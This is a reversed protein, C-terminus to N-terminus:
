DAPLFRTKVVECLLEKRIVWKPAEKSVIKFDEILLLEKRCKFIEISPAVTFATLDFKM